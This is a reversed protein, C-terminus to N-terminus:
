FRFYLFPNFSGDVLYATMVLMLVILVLSEAVVLCKQAWLKSALKVVANKISSAITRYIVESEKSDTLIPLEIADVLLSDLKEAIALKERFTLTLGQEEVAKLTFDSVTIKRM